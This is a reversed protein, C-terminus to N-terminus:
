ELIKKMQQDTLPYVRFEQAENNSFIAKVSYGIPMKSISYTHTKVFNNGQKMYVACSTKDKIIHSQAIMTKGNSFIYKENSINNHLHRKIFFTKHNTQNIAFAFKTAILYAKCSVTNSAYTEASLSLICFIVMLTIKKMRAGIRFM